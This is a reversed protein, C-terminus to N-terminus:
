NAQEKLVTENMGDSGKSGCKANSELVHLRANVEALETEM